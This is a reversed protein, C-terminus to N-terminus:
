AVDGIVINGDSDFAYTRLHIGEVNEVLRSAADASDVPVFVYCARAHKALLRWQRARGATVTSATEVEGVALIERGPEMLAVIDPYVARRLGSRTTYTLAGNQERGPNAVVRCTGQPFRREAILGVAADHEEQERGSRRAM